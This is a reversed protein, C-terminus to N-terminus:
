KRKYKRNTKRPASVTIERLNYPGYETPSFKEKISKPISKISELIQPGYEKLTQYQMPAFAAETYAAPVWEGAFPLYNTISEGAATPIAAASAGLYGALPYAALGSGAIIAATKLADKNFEENRRRDRRRNIDRIVNFDDEPTYPINGGVPKKKGGCRYINQTAAIRDYYTPLKIVKPQFQTPAQRVTQVNGVANNAVASNVVSGLGKTIGGILDNTDQTGWAVRKRGGCKFLSLRDYYSDAADQSGNIATALNAATTLNNQERQAREQEEQQKKQANANMISSITGGILSAAAGAIAGWFAKKRKYKM